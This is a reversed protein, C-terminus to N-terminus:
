HEGASKANAKAAPEGVLGIKLLDSNKIEEARAQLEDVDWSAYVFRGALFDAEKSALWLAFQGPLTVDGWAIPYKDFGHSIASSTLITGPHYSTIRVNKDVYEEQLHMLLHVFAEKSAGYGAMGQILQHAGTSSVNIIKKEKILADPHLYETVVNLNGKVNIEFDRWLSDLPISLTPLPQHGSAACLVLVDPEAIRTRVQAFVANLKAADDISAPFTHINTAPYEQAINKKAEDLLEGRRALIIINAAGAAAFAAVIAYGIGESGGVILITKGKASLSPKSPSIAPYPEAHSLQTFPHASNPQIM